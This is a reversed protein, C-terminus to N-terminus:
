IAPEGTVIQEYFRERYAAVLADCLAPLADVLGRQPLSQGSSPDVPASVDSRRLTDSPRVPGQLIANELSDLYASMQEVMEAEFRDTMWWDIILGVALGVGLGVVTGVPGVLSGGGAGTATAGATAGLGAAASVAAASGFRALLGAVVSIAAYSGAESIILVTLANYVSTTGQQASYGRLRRAVAEFFPQYEDILVEPLDATDLSARVSILLRKQNADVEQRFDELVESVDRLLDVESFLHRQFKQQVYAEIRKDGQWWNGPMRRVIGLRTSISTLDEVFPEIGDHYGRLLQHLREICRDAAQRNRRDTEDIRPEVQTDFFLARQVDRAVSVAVPVPTPTPIEPLPGRTQQSSVVFVLLAVLTAGWAAAGVPHAPGDGGAARLSRVLDVNVDTSSQKLDHM